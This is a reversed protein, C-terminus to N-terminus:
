RGTFSDYVPNEVTVDSLDLQNLKLIHIYLWNRVARISGGCVNHLSRGHSKEM